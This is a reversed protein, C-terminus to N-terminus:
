LKSKEYLGLTYKIIEKKNKIELLNVFEEIAQPIDIGSLDEKNETDDLLRNFNIDYDVTLAEPKLLTLKKLLIDMDSQSINMDVKLRAINGAFLDVVSKTIKGSRVLQSLSIKKYNPSINNTTFNYELTDLDLIYYGKQNNTDGFDMQFPNGVYLITGKGFKKEHRTHFHGSIVLPSKKLLDKVKLGEECVKYSNM